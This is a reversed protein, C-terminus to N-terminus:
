QNVLDGQNFMEDLWDTDVLGPIEVSVNYKRSVKKALSYAAAQGTFTSDNDGFIILKEVEIPPEFAELLSASLTAWVPVGWGEHCAIATEVGEAVGLVRGVPFLRVAGGQMPYKPTMIRKVTKISAKNGLQTLYTIQLTSARGDKDSFTALMAPHTIRTEPEWVGPHCRLTPPYVNLKRKNLYLTAASSYQHDEALPESGRYLEKMYKINPQKKKVEAVVTSGLVNNVAKVAEPFTCGLVNQILSWGDGAGCNNCIWNGMGRNNDFRFRDEGGCAPCPCHKGNGVNIGLAQYISPWRGHTNPINNNATSM